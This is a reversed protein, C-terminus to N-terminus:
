SSTQLLKLYLLGGILALSIANALIIVIDEHLVGYVVWLGLGCTFVLLMKLSIDDTEGTTWAKKLQPLNAADRLSGCRPWGGYRFHEHSKPGTRRSM